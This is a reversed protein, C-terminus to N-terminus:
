EKEKNSPKKGSRGIAILIMPSVIAGIIFGVILGVWLPPIYVDINM